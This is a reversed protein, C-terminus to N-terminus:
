QFESIRSSSRKKSREKRASSKRGVSLLYLLPQNEEDFSKNAKKKHIEFYTAMALVIQIERIDQSVPTFVHASKAKWNKMMINTKVPAENPILFLITIDLLVIPGGPVLGEFLQGVDREADCARLDEGISEAGELQNRRSPISSSSDTPSSTSAQSASRPTPYSNSPKTRSHHSNIRHLDYHRV